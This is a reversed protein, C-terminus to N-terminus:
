MKQLKKSASSYVIKIRSPQQKPPEEVILTTEAATEIEKLQLSTSFKKALDATASTSIENNEEKIVPQEPRKLIKIKM